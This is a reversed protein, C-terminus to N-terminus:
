GELNELVHKTTLHL